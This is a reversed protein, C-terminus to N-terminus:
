LTNKLNEIELIATRYVKRNMKTMNQMEIHLEELIEKAESTKDQRILFQILGLRENYHSYPKDIAKLQIEAEELRGLQELSMGYVYQLETKKFELTDKLRDCVEVVAAHDGRHYKSLIIQKQVHFDSQSTDELAKKYHTMANPYDKTEFHADALNVRNEYTEAFQLRLELDKIRKSPNIITTINEQIKEADRKNYVQTALYVICGVLPLFIILFIWYFSNRNKILHYICFVQFAIILYYYM